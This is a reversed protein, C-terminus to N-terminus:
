NKIIKKSILQGNKLKLEVIYVGNTLNTMNIQNDSVSVNVKQGLINIVNVAEIKSDTKMFLLGHTPNPYLALTNTNIKIDSTSLGSSPKICRVSAGQGRPAGAGPNAVTTGIYLYKAGSSSTDSSWFYGKQGAFTIAGDSSARFGGAPLKLKGSYAKIPSSIAEASVAEEWDAKSPINWGPGIAKCPDVGIENKADTAVAGNWQDSLASGAWWAPSGVIYSETTIGQPTNVSPAFTLSSNRLQHGDDWRGWQFLDGYSAEDSMSTAVQSSGLNQQLWIKGDTGRVTTYSVQQGQYTFTVCGLDGPNTGPDTNNCPQTNNDTLAIRKVKTGDESYALVLFNHANDVALDNYKAEGYSIFDGGLTVWNQANDLHYVTNRLFNDNEFRSAVVYPKGTQSVALAVHQVKGESFDANGVQEWSSGNFRKVNLKRGQSGTSVYAAYITNSGDLAIDSSYQEGSSASAVAAGGVLTWANSSSADLTNQYVKLGGSVNATYIMNNTGVVMEAFEAGGSFGANGVQEWIGNNYRKVTGSGYSGFTFLVNNQSVASAQYNVSSDSANPLSLWTSGDFQRVELGSGPYGIQNTYFLNTGSPSISLSNYTATGSTIGANGGVYSWGAGNFKQVSGKAVSVDYYSVYYNGTNDIVLNNFSSGGASVNQVGGVDEWQQSYLYSGAMTLLVLGTRINRVAFHLKEFM